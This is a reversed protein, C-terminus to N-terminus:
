LYNVQVVGFKGHNTKTIRRHLHHNINKPQVKAQIYFIPLIVFAINGQYTPNCPPMAGQRRHLKSPYGHFLSTENPGIATCFHPSFQTQSLGIFYNPVNLDRYFFFVCVPKPYLFHVTPLIDTASDSTFFLSCNHFFHVASQLNFKLFIMQTIFLVCEYVTSYGSVSVLASELTNM